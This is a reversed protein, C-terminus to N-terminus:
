GFINEQKMIRLVELGSTRPLYMNITAADYSKNRLCKLATDGDTCIDVASFGQISNIIDCMLKRMLASDDVVLINYM